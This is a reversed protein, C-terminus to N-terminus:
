EWSIFNDGDGANASAVATEGGYVPLLLSSVSVVAIRVFFVAGVVDEATAGEGLFAARWAAGDLLNFGARGAAVCAGVRGLAEALRRVEGLVVAGAAGDLLNFGVRGAAACAGVWGLAEALRWAEGLMVGGAAGDLLNFGVRGAAVCAGVRGLAEALRRAEGLM